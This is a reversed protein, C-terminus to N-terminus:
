ADEEVYERIKADMEPFNRGVSIIKGEASVFCHESQGTCRVVGTAKDTIEYEIYLRVGTYKAFRIKIVVTDYFETPTKFKANVSTVPSMVGRAECEKYGLGIKEFYDVRAEEFWRIYNSHHVVKMQDTEYYQVTHEYPKIQRMIRNGM